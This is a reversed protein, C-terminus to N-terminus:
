KDSLDWLAGVIKKMNEAHSKVMYPICFHSWRQGWIKLSRMFQAAEYAWTKGNNNNDQQRWKSCLWRQCAYNHNGHSLSCLKAWKQAHAYRKTPIKLGSRPCRCRGGRRTWKTMSHGKIWTCVKNELVKGM